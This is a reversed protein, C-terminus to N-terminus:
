CLWLGDKLFRTIYKSEKKNEMIVGCLHLLLNKNIKRENRKTRGNKTRRGTSSTPTVPPSTVNRHRAPPAGRGVTKHCRCSPWIGTLLALSCSSEESLYILKM